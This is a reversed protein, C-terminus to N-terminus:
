AASSERMKNIFNKCEKHNKSCCYKKLIRLEKKDLITSSSPCKIYNKKYLGCRLKLEISKLIEVEFFSKM